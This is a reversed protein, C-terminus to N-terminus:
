LIDYNIYGNKNRNCWSKLVKFKICAPESFFCSFSGDDTRATLFPLIRMFSCFQNLLRQIRLTDKNCKWQWKISWVLLSFYTRLSALYKRILLLLWSFTESALAFTHIKHHKITNYHMIQLFLPTFCPIQQFIDPRWPTHDVRGTFSLFSFAAKREALLTM